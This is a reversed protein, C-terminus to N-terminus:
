KVKERTIEPFFLGSSGPCHLSPHWVFKCAVSIWALYVGAESLPTPIICIFPGIKLNARPFRRCRHSLTAELEAELYMFIRHIEKTELREFRVCFDCVFSILLPSQGDSHVGFVNWQLIHTWNLINYFNRSELFVFFLCVFLGFFFFSFWNPGSSMAFKLGPQFKLGTLRASIEARSSFCIRKFDFQRNCPSKKLGPRM